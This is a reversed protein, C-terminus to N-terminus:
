RLARTHVNMTARVMGERSAHTAIFSRADSHRKRLDPETLARVHTITRALDTADGARHFFVAPCGGYLEKLVPLDSCVLMRSHALTDLAVYPSGELGTSPMVVIGAARICAEVDDIMGLWTCAESIGLRHARQQWAALLPGDGAFMLQMRVGQEHLLAAADLLVEGGKTETCRGIFAVQQSHSTPAAPPPLSIGNGVVTVEHMSSHAVQSLYHARSLASLAIVHHPQWPLWNFTDYMSHLTLVRVSGTRRAVAAAVPLLLRSHVHLVVIRHTEVLDQVIDIARLIGTWSRRTGSADYLPLFTCDPMAITGDPMWAAIHGDVGHGRMGEILDRVHREVGGREWRNVLHLVSRLTM